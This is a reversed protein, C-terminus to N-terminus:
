EACGALTYTTMSTAGNTTLSLVLEGATATYDLSPPIPSPTSSACDVTFALQTGAPTVHTNARFSLATTAAAADLVDGAWLFRTGGDLVGITLRRGSPTANGFGEVRTAHYLGDTIAGGAPAPPAGVGATFPIAAASNVLTNCAPAAVIDSPPVCPAAGKGCAAVVLLTAL